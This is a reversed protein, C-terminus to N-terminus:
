ARNALIIDITSVKIQRSDQSYEETGIKIEKIEPIQEKLFRKRIVETIDVAKSIFKGRAKITVEPVTKLQMVTSTVYSMLPKNGVFVTNESNKSVKEKKAHEVDM